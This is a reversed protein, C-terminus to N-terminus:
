LGRQYFQKWRSKALPVLAEVPKKSMGGLHVATYTGEQEDHEVIQSDEISQSLSTHGPRDAVGTRRGDNPLQSVPWHNWWTFHSWQEEIAGPGFLKPESRPRWILFPRYESELNTIQITPDKLKAQSRSPKSEWSFTQSEGDM